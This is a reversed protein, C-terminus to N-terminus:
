PRFNQLLLSAKSARPEADMFSFALGSLIVVFALVVIVVFCRDAFHTNRV